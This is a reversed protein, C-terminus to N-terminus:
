NSAKFLGNNQILAYLSYRLKMWLKFSSTLPHLRFVSIVTESTLLLMESIFILKLIKNKQLYSHKKDKLFQWFISSRMASNLLITSLTGGIWCGCRNPLLAKLVQNSKTLSTIKFNIIKWNQNSYYVLIIYYSHSCDISASKLRRHVFWLLRCMNSRIRRYHCEFRSHFQYNLYNYNNLLASLNLLQKIILFPWSIANAM